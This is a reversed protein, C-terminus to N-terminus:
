RKLYFKCKMVTKEEIPREEQFLLNEYFWNVRIKCTRGKKTPKQKRKVTDCYHADNSKCINDCAFSLLLLNKNYDTM